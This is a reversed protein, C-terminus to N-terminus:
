VYPPPLDVGLAEHLLEMDRRDKPKPEYGLHHLVQVEATVCRVPVGAVRGVGRFGRAPYTFFGGGPAAQFGDGRADFRVPHLDVRRDDPDRLVCRTPLSDARLDFGLVGLAGQAPEVLDIPIVVDVDDHPRTQRGVLADIGWGGDLWAPVGASDLCALVQLVDRPEM